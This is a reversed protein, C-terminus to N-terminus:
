LKSLQSGSNMVIKTAQWNLTVSSLMRLEQSTKSKRSVGYHFTFCRLFQSHQGTDSKISLCCLNDHIWTRLQWFQLTVLRQSQKQWQTQWQRQRQIQRQTRKHNKFLKWWLSESYTHNYPDTLGVLLYLSWIRLSSPCVSVGWNWKYVRGM